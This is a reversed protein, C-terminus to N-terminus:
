RAYGNLVKIMVQELSSYTTVEALANGPPALAQAVEPRIGVLVAEAGPLRLAHVISLLGQAVEKDVLPVGTIDFLIYRFRRDAVSQLVRISLIALRASDIAGILPVVASTRTLPLLPVSMSRIVERQEEITALQEQLHM